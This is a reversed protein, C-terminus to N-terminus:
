GDFPFSSSDTTTLHVFRSSNCLTFYTLFLFVFINIYVYPFRSFYCQDVQKCPLCLSAPMSFPSTYEALSPSPPVFQSLLM